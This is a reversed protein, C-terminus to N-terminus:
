HFGREVIYISHFWTTKVVAYSFVIPLMQSAQVARFAYRSAKSTPAVSLCYQSIEKLMYRANSYSMVESLSSFNVRKPGTSRFNRPWLPADPCGGDLEAGPRWLSFSISFRKSVGKTLKWEPWYQPWWLDDSTLNLLIGYKKPYTGDNHTMRWFSNYTPPRFFSRYCKLQEKTLM